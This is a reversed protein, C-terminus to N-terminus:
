IFRWESHEDSLKIQLSFRILVVSIFLLLAIPSFLYLFLLWIMNFIDIVSLFRMCCWFHFKFKENTWLLILVFFFCLLSSFQLQRTNTGKYPKCHRSFPYFLKIADSFCVHTTYILPKHIDILDNKTKTINIQEIKKGWVKERM